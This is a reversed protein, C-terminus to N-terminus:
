ERMQVRYICIGSCSQPAEAGFQSANAKYAKAFKCRRAAKPHMSDLSNSIARM